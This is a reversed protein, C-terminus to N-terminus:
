DNELTEKNAKERIKIILNSLTEGSWGDLQKGTDADRIKLVPNRDLHYGWSRLTIILETAEELLLNADEKSIDIM